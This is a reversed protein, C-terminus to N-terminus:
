VHTHICRARNPGRTNSEEENGAHHALCLAIAFGRPTASRIEKTRASSGGLRGHQPSYTSVKRKRKQSRYQLEKPRVPRTAPKHIDPSCWILTRKRYADRPPIHAPFLPHRADAKPIYGGFECPDFKFNPPRWLRSLAGVPNEIVYPCRLQAAVEACRMARAAAEHQFDPNARRKREWSPAGSAALDTCPPYAFLIAVRDRHQAILNRLTRPCDLDAHVHNLKGHKTHTNEHQIDYAWCEFGRDLWPELGLCTHDFLSIVRTAKVRPVGMWLGM